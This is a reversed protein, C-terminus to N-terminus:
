VIEISRIENEGLCWNGRDSDICITSFGDEEDDAKTYGRATGKYTDGDVDVVVVQLQGLAAKEMIDDIKM